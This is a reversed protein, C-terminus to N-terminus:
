HGASTQGLFSKTVLHVEPDSRLLRLSPRLLVSAVAIMDTMLTRLTPDDEVVILMGEIPLIGDWIVNL